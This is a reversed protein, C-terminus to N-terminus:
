DNKRRVFDREGLFNSIRRNKNKIPITNKEKDKSLLKIQNDLYNNIKVGVYIIFLVGVIFATWNLVDVVWSLM